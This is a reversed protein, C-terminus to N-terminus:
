LANGPQNPEPFLDALRRSVPDIRGAPILNNPFATRQRQGNALTEVMLPDHIIIRQNGAAFTQSFDGRRQLLTPVTTVFTFPFGQRLGEYDAFFFTKNKVIPGGLNAGFQHRKFSPNPIGSANNFWNNAEVYSHREFDYVLGHLENTGSKTIVNIVGGSTRGFEADYSNTQVTFEQVSDVPPNIVGRNVDPTTNAAGDLLLEQSGSRGGGVNFDSKFFNRGLEQGGGNGFNAGFTVGPTLGILALPDRVNLPLGEITRTTVVQGVSANSTQLAEAAATVVIHEAADGLQLSVNLTITDNVQLTIPGQEFTKFGTMSVAIKYQAPPLALFRYIGESNSQTEFTANTAINTATLKANPVLSGTADRVEGTIQAQFTQAFSPLSFIFLMLVLLFAGHAKMTYMM